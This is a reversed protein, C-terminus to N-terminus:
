ECGRFEINYLFMDLFYCSDVGLVVEGHNTELNFGVVFWLKAASSPVIM